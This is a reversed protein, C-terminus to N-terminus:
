MLTVRGLASVVVGAVSRVVLAVLVSATGVAVRATGSSALAIAVANVVVEVVSRVALARAMGVVVVGANGSGAVANAQL